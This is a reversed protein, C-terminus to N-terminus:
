SFLYPSIIGKVRGGDEIVSKFANFDSKGVYSAMEHLEMGFRIDPKDSGYREMADHYNLIPFTKPLEVDLMGAVGADAMRRRITASNFTTSLCDDVIAQLNMAIQGEAQADGIPQLAREFLQLTNNYNEFTGSKEAWTAAPLFM